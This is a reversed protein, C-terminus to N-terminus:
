EYGMDSVEMYIMGCRSVIAPSANNLNDIEFYITIYQTFSFIQGSSLWLKKTDDLVSNLNEIWYTDVPGDM